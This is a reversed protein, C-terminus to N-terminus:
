TLAGPLARLRARFSTPEGPSISDTLAIALTRLTEVPRTFVERGIGRWMARANGSGGVPTITVLWGRDQLDRIELEDTSEDNAGRAEGLIAIPVPLRFVRQLAALPNAASLARCHHPRTQSEISPLNLFEIQTM